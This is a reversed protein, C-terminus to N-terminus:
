CFGHTLFGGLLPCLFRPSRFVRKITTCREKELKSIYKSLVGMAHAIEPRTCVMAYIFSLVASMYPVHSM